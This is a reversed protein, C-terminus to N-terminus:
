QDVVPSMNNTKWIKWGNKHINTQENTEHGNRATLSLALQLLVNQAFLVTNKRNDFCINRNKPITTTMTTTTTTTLAQESDLL